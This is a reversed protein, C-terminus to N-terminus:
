AEFGVREGVGVIELADNLWPLSADLARVVPSSSEYRERINRLREGVPICDGAPSTMFDAVWLVSHLYRSPEEVAPLSIGRAQCEWRATSHWGVHPALHRVGEADPSQLLWHAGDVAHMGTNPYAYGIDHLFGADRLLREQRTDSSKLRSLRVATASVSRSHEMREPLGAQAFAEAAMSATLFGEHCQRNKRMQGNLWTLSVCDRMGGGVTAIVGLGGIGSNTTKSDSM